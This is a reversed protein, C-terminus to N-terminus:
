IFYLQPHLNLISEQAPPNPNRQQPKTVTQHDSSAM